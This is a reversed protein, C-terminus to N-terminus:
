GKARLLATTLWRVLHSAKECVLARANVNDTVIGSLVVSAERVPPQIAFMNRWSSTSDNVNINIDINDDSYTDICVDMWLCRDTRQHLTFARPKLQIEVAKDGKSPSLHLKQRLKPSTEIVQKFRTNIKQAFLLNKLPLFGLIHELLEPIAFVNAAATLPEADENSTVSTTSPATHAAFGDAVFSQRPALTTIGSAM